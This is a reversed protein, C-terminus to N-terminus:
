MSRGIFKEADKVQQEGSIIKPLLTDRLRETAFMVLAINLGCGTQRGIAKLLDITANEVTSENFASM